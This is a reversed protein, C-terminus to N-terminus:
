SRTGVYSLGVLLDGSPISRGVGGCVFDLSLSRHFMMTPVFGLSLSRYRSRGLIGLRGILGPLVLVLLLVFGLLIGGRDGSDVLRLDTVLSPLFLIYTLDRTVVTISLSM